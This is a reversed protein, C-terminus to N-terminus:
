GIKEISRVSIDNFATDDATRTSFSLVVAVLDDEYYKCQAANGWLDAVLSGYIRGDREFSDLSRLHIQKVFTQGVAKAEGTTKAVKMIITKM